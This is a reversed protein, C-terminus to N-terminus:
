ALLISIATVLRDTSRISRDGDAPLLAVGIIPSPNPCRAANRDARRFQAGFSRTSSLPFYRFGSRAPPTAKDYHRAAVIRPLWKVPGRKASAPIIKATRRHEPRARVSPHLGGS